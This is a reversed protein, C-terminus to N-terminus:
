EASLLGFARMISTAAIDGHTTKAAMVHRALVSTTMEGALTNECAPHPAGYFQYMLVWVAQAKDAADANTPQDMMQAYLSLLTNKHSHTKREGLHKEAVQQVYEGALFGSTVEEVYQWHKLWCAVQPRTFCHMNMLGLAKSLARSETKLLQRAHRRRPSNVCASIGHSEAEALVAETSLERNSIKEAFIGALTQEQTNSNNISM